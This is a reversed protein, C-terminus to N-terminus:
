LCHVEEHLFPNPELGRSKFLGVTVGIVYGEAQAAGESVAGMLGGYGGTMVAYGAAALRGGLKLAEVYDPAGPDISASGYVGVVKRAKHDQGETTNQMLGTQFPM